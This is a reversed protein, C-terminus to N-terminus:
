PTYVRSFAVVESDPLYDPEVVLLPQIPFTGMLTSYKLLGVRVNDYGPPTKSIFPVNSTHSDSNLFAMQDVIVVKGQHPFHLVHFLIYLVAHM